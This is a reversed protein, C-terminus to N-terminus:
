LYTVIYLLNEEILITWAKIYLNWDYKILLRKLAKFVLGPKGSKEFHETTELVQRINDGISRGHLFGTQNPHIIDL